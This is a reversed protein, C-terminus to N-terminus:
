KSGGICWLNTAGRLYICGNAFAPSALFRDTLESRAVEKFQRGAEVVVAVGKTGLVLLKDGVISPSSQVEMELEKEWAKKGDTANFCALLGSSTVTFILGGRSVPSTVDPVNDETLWAVHSKTVDGVGDPRLAMLGSAPSVVIVNGDAFVPSPTIEGQM